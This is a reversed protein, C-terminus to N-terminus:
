DQRTARQQWREREKRVWAVSDEMDKRDAYMGFFPLKLFADPAIKEEVDIHVVVEMGDPLPLPEVFVITGGKVTGHGVVSM